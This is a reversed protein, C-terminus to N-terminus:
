GEEDDDDDDDDEEEGEESAELWKLLALMGPATRAKELEAIAVNSGEPLTALADEASLSVWMKVTSEDVPQQGEYEVFTKIHLPLKVSGQPLVRLCLWALVGLAHLGSQAAPTCVALAAPLQADKIPSACLVRLLPLDKDVRLSSFVTVMRELQESSQAPSAASSVQHWEKM